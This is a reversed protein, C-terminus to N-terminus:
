QVWMISVRCLCVYEFFDLYFLIQHERFGSSAMTAGQSSNCQIQPKSNDCPHESNFRLAGLWQAMEEDGWIFCM